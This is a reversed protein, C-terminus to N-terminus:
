LSAIFSDRRHFDPQPGGRSLAWYTVQSDQLKVVATLAAEFSQGPGIKALDIEMTLRLSDPRSRVSFPLSAFAMEEAMGCRYGTFRYVNWHGAPSLNFEWYGPSDKVGLFFEFCTEKWLDAQRERADTALPLAVESLQGCLEFGAALVRARRTLRGTIQLDLGPRLPAFPRLVFSQDLDAKM